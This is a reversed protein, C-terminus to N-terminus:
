VLLRLYARLTHVLVHDDTKFGMMVLLREGAPRLQPLWGFLSSSVKDKVVGAGVLEDLMRGRDTAAAHVQTAITQRVLDDARAAQLIEIGAILRVPDEVASKIRKAMMEAARLGSPEEILAEIFQGTWGNKDDNIERVLGDNLLESKSKYRRYVAGTSVGADKAIDRLHTGEFGSEVLARGTADILANSIEDRPTATASPPSITVRAPLSQTPVENSMERGSLMLEVVSALDASLPPVSCGAGVLVFHGLVVSTLDHRLGEMLISDGGNLHFSRYLHNLAECVGETLTEHVRSALAIEVLSHLHAGLTPDGFIQRLLAETGRPGHDGLERLSPLVKESLVEALLAARNPFRAYVSGVSSYSRKAVSEMTFLSHGREVLERVAADRIISTTQAYRDVM